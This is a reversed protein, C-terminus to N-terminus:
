FLTKQTAYSTKVKKESAQHYGSGCNATDYIIVHDAASALYAFHNDMAPSYLIFLTDRSVEKMTRAIWRKTEGADDYMSADHECFVISNTNERLVTLLQHATFPRQISFNSSVRDIGNLIRSFNSCIFLTTYRQLAPNDNLSGRITAVSSIIAYFRGPVLIHRNNIRLDMM